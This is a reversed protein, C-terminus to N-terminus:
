STGDGHSGSQGELNALRGEHDSLRGDHGDLRGDHGMLRSTVHEHQHDGGDSGDHTHTGDAGMAKARKAAAQHSVSANQIAAGLAGPRSESTQIGQTRPARPDSM